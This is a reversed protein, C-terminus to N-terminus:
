SAYEEAAPPRLDQLSRPPEEGTVALGSDRLSGSWPRLATGTAVHYRFITPLAERGQSFVKEV